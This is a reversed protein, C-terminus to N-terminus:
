NVSLLWPAVSEQLEVEVDNGSSVDFLVQAGDVFVTDRGNRKWIGSKKNWAGSSSLVFRNNTIAPPPPVTKGEAEGLFYSVHPPQNYGCMQWAIAQRYQHDHM